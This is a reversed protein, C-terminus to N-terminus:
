GQRLCVHHTVNTWVGSQASWEGFSSVRRAKVEVTVIWWLVKFHSLACRFSLSVCVCGSCDGSFNESISRSRTTQWVFVTGVSRVPSVVTGVNSVLARSRHHHVQTFRSEVIAAACLVVNGQKLERSRSAGM